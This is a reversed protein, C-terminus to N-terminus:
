EAHGTAYITGAQTAQRELPKAPRKTSRRRVPREGAFRLPTQCPHRGPYLVRAQARLADRHFNAADAYRDEPYAENWLRLQEAWPEDVHDAGTFAALRLHKPSLARVPKMDVQRRAAEFAAAAHAPSLAPGLDLVVRRRSRELGIGHRQKTFTRRRM